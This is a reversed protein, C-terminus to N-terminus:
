IGLAHGTQYVACAVLWALLTMGTFSLAPWTWSRTERAMVALTAACQMCLAFFVMLSLATPLDFLPSGDPREAQQLADILSGSTEDDAEGVNFITGLTAVVVERAPFSALTAMGIRWDWGLPEVVPEVWRGVRGLYSDRLLAGAEVRAIAALEEDLDAERELLTSALPFREPHEAAVTARAQEHAADVAALALEGADAEELAAREAQAAANLARLASLCAQLGPDEAPLGARLARLEADARQEAAARQAAHEQLVASSRPFWAFAWVVVSVALIITGAKKVFASGKHWLTAVVTRWQPLKYSPLELLFPCSRGRIVTRNLLTAIPIAFLPGVLYMGFLALSRQDVVGLVERAPVFAGILLVYVPLRAACSMFPVLLVTALRTKRDAIVRAGMIGPIACAFGSLMPIFSRGSLGFGRMLRDMLFAARSMYGIDELLAICVFLILIQPLFVLVGGVGGIVGDALLGSLAGPGLSTSVLGALSAFTGDILEMMPASWTYLAEFILLMVLAFIPTGWLRHTVIADIRDSLTRRRAEGSRCAGLYARIAEYRTRTELLAPSAGALAPNRALEERCDALFAPFGPDLAALRAIVPSDLDVLLRVADGRRAAVGRAAADGELRELVAGMARAFPEPYPLRLDPGPQGVVRRVAEQLAAIGERRPGHVPVVEVGGLADGLAVPDVRLGRARAVDVMTLAIVLPRGFELIQTVLLLNRELNSADVVAVVADPPAFGPLVGLMADVAIREDPSRAALSYTGPLDVIVDGHEGATRGTHAEVTVGPFNAVRQRTGTLAAFVASKGTNPNGLLLVTAPKSATTM